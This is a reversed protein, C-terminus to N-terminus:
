NVMANRPVGARRTGINNMFNVVVKNNFESSNGKSDV